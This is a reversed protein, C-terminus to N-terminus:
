WTVPLEYLGGTLRETHLRLEAPDVALRLEPLRAFLGALVVKLETRALSAGICFHAGHGFSLHANPARGVDFTDPQDFARGDRNTALTSFIVADGAPITVRHEGEGVTLDAHAYRALGVGDPAALRLVEEVVRSVISPDAVLADRAAPNELLLLVGISIRNVTTEHGAFLLGAVMMALQNDDFMPDERQAAVLDSIVDEGPEARKAEALRGTYQMLEVIATVPDDGTMTAARESLDKFHDRDAYPVGLLRCIVYIPLPVSLLEHLDVPTGGTGAAIMRDLLDDTLTQVDDELQRMRRASFAPVLLRRMRSHDAKETAFNGTPGGMFGSASIRSAREPHPHSRGLRDSGFLQKAEDYGTVLWAPDGAPTLVRTVPHRGRLRAFTPGVDLVGPRDFPLQLTEVTETTMAVGAHTPTRQEVVM